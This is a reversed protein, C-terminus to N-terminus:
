RMLAGGDIEYTQGTIYASADSALFLALEAVEEPKGMRSIPLGSVMAAITEEPPVGRIAGRRQANAQTLPTDIVGPAIANVRIRHPGLAAATSRTVSVLAAKSAGYATQETKGLFSSISALNVVCGGSGAMWHHALAQTLFFPAMVNVRFVRDWTAPETELLPETPCIGAANVLIDVHGLDSVVRSVLSGLTDIASLDWEISRDVPTPNLDVGVVDAGAEIFRRAIALGIGQASGTVLAGKGALNM